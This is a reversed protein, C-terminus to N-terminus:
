NKDNWKFLKWGGQANLRNKGAAALARNINKLLEPTADTVGSQSDTIAIGEKNLAFVRSSADVWFIGQDAKVLVGNDLVDESWVDVKDKETPLLASYVLKSYNGDPASPGCGALLFCCLFSM